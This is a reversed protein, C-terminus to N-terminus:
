IDIEIRALFRPGGRSNGGAVEDGAIPRVDLVPSVVPKPGASQPPSAGAKGGAVLVVEDATSLFDEVEEVLVSLRRKPETPATEPVNKLIFRTGWPRPSDVSGGKSPPTWNVWEVAPVVEDSGEKVAALVREHTLAGAAALSEVVSIRMRPYVLDAETSEDSALRGSVSGGVKVELVLRGEIDRSTSIEVKREPQVQAWVSTPASVRLEEPAQAQYRVLGLRVFPEVVLDPNLAVDVFWKESEVDFRPVYTALAATLTDYARQPVDAGPSAKEIERLDQLPVSVSPVYGTQDNEPEAVSEPVVDLLAERSLFPGSPGANMRIPDAGWRTTFKGGTGLDEDQFDALQMLDKDKPDFAHLVSRLVEGRDLQALGPRDSTIERLQPPWLVIGLREGEGSSYWPRELLIRLRPRRRFVRHRQTVNASEPRDIDYSPLVAHVVPKAPAITAPIWLNRLQTAVSKLYTDRTTKPPQLWPPDVDPDLPEEYSQRTIFRAHDPAPPFIKEPLPVTATPTSRVFYPDFRSTVSLVVTIQRALRDSYTDLPATRFAGKSLDVDAKDPSERRELTRIQESVLDVTELQAFQSDPARESLDDILLLTSFRKPLYVKGTADVDFGFLHRARQTPLVKSPEGARGPEGPIVRLPWEGILRQLETRGLDTNDIVSGPPTCFVRVELQRCSDRDMRVNGALVIGDDGRAGFRQYKGVQADKLVTLRAAQDSKTRLAMFAGSRVFEPLRQPSAVAHVFDITRVGSIEPLPRRLMHQHLIQAAAAVAAPDAMVGAPGVWAPQGQYRDRIKALVADEAFENGLLKKLEAFLRNRYAAEGGSQPGAEHAAKVALAEPWAFYARLKEVSPVLWCDVDVAEGQRLHITGLQARMTGAAEGVDRRRGSIRRINDGAKGEWFDDQTPQATRIGRPDKKMTIAVPLVRGAERISFRRPIGEFYGYGPTNNNPRVAVVLMDAMPDVYYQRSADGRERPSKPQAHVRFFDERAAPVDDTRPGTDPPTIEVSPFGNGQGTKQGPKEIRGFARRGVDDDYDVELLNGPAIAETGSSGDFIGHRVAEDLSVRPPLIVRWTEGNERDKYAEFFEKSEPSNVTVGLSRLTARVGSQPSMDAKEGALGEPLLALPALIPEHRLFRRWGKVKIAGSEDARPLSLNGYGAALNQYRAVAHDVSLSVGGLWVPRIGFRYAWGYRLPWAKYRDDAERVALSFLRSVNVDSGPRVIVTDDGCGLGLPDGEWAAIVEEAHIMEDEALLRRRATPMLLGADYHRRLSGRLALDRDLERFLRDFDDATPAAGPKRYDIEREMLSRWDDPTAPDDEGTRVAVDVRYGVTLDDGDVVKLKQKIAREARLVEWAISEARWRDVISLGRGVIGSELQDAFAPRLSVAPLEQRAMSEQVTAIKRSNRVSTEMAHVPDISIIDFRPNFAGKGDDDKQGLDVVGDIQSVAGTDRIEDIKKNKARLELEERTAPWFGTLARGDRSRTAKAVSFMLKEPDAIGGEGVKGAAVFFFKCLDGDAPEDYNGSWLESEKLEVDIVFRFLRSLMPSSRVATAFSRATYPTGDAVADTQPTDEKALRRAEASSLAGAPRGKHDPNDPLLAALHLTQAQELPERRNGFLRKVPYGTLSPRTATTGDIPLQDNGVLDRIKNLEAENKKTLKGVREEIRDREKKEQDLVADAVKKAHSSDEIDFGNKKEQEWTPVSQPSEYYDLAIGPPEHPLRVRAALRELQALLHLVAADGRGTPVANPISGLLYRRAAAPATFVKALESWFSTVDGKSGRMAAAAMEDWLQQVSKAGTESFPIPPLNLEVVENWDEKTPRKPPGKSLDIPKIFLKLESWRKVWGPWKAVDVSIDDDARKGTPLLVITLRLNGAKTPSPGAAVVRADIWVDNTM